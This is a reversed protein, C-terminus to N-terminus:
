VTRKWRCIWRNEKDSWLEALEVLPSGLVAIQTGGGSLAPHDQAVPEYFYGDFHYIGKEINPRDGNFAVYATRRIDITNLTFRLKCDNKWERLIQLKDRTRNATKWAQYSCWHVWPKTRRVFRPPSAHPLHGTRIVFGLVTESRTRGSRKSIRSNSDTVRYVRDALKEIDRIPLMPYVPKPPVITAPFRAEFREFGGLAAALCELSACLAAKGEKTNTKFVERLGITRHGGFNDVFRGAIIRFGALASDTFQGGLLSKLVKLQDRWIPDNRWIPNDKWSRRRAM